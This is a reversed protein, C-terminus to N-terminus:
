NKETLYIYHLISEFQDRSIINSNYKFIYKNKGILKRISIINNEDEFTYYICNYISKETLKMQTDGFIENSFDIFKKADQEDKVNRRYYTQNIKLDKIYLPVACEYSNTYEYSVDIKDARVIQKLEKDSEYELLISSKNDSESPNDFIGTIDNVLQLIGSLKPKSYYLTLVGSEM